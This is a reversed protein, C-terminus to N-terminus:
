GVQAVEHQPYQVRSGPLPLVVDSISFASAEAEQASVVHVAALRTSSRESLDVESVLVDGDEGSEALPTCRISVTSAEISQFAASTTELQTLGLM